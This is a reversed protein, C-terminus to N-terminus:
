DNKELLLKRLENLATVTTRRRIMERSGHMKHKKVCIKNLFKTATYVLGVPKEVTGGGPGAIGTTAIGTDTNLNRSLCLVMEEATERSVAGYTLLTKGSVGLVNEKIENSYVTYGGKFVSSVGALDTIKSSIMGGTCSEATGLTWNNEKLISVIEEAPHTFGKALISDKYYDRIINVANEIKVKERGSIMLECIGPNTRFAIDFNKYDEKLIESIGEQFTSEPIGIAYLSQYVIKNGNDKLLLPLVSASFMPKLEAPPGPLLFVSLDHLAMHIGPATGNPNSIAESGEPIYTQKVNTPTITTRGRYKLFNRLSALAKSDQKLELGFFDATAEVTVDDTTPGLGGTLIIVDSDHRCDKLARKIDETNDRVTLQQGPIIGNKFLENGIFLLHTNIIKGKLLEDGICIISIKM